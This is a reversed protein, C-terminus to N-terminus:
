LLFTLQLKTNFYIAGVVDVHEQLVWFRKWTLNLWFLHFTNWDIETFSKTCTFPLRLNRKLIKFCKKFLKLRDIVQSWSLSILDWSNSLDSNLFAHRAYWLGLSKILDRTWNLDLNRICDENCLVLSTFYRRAFNWIMLDLKM